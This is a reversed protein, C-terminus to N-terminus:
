PFPFNFGPEGYTQAWERYVKWPQECNPIDFLAGIIPWGRPGPALRHGRLRHAWKRRHNVYVVAAVIVTTILALPSVPM